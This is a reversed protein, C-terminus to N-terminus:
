TPPRLQMLDVAWEALPRHGKFTPLLYPPPPFQAREQQNPLSERAIRECDVKMGTWYYGAKLRQHLRQGSCYAMEAHVRRLIAQREGLLPM